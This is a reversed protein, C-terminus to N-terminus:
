VIRTGVFYVSSLSIILSFAFYVLCANLQSGDVLCWTIIIKINVTM